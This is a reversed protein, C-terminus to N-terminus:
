TQREEVEADTRHDLFSQDHGLYAWLLFELVQSINDGMRVTDGTEKVRELAALYLQENIRVSTKRRSGRFRPFVGRGNEDGRRRWWLIMERLCELEDAALEERGIAGTDPARLLPALDPRLKLLAPALYSATLRQALRDAAAVLESRM